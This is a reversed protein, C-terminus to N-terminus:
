ERLIFSSFSDNFKKLSLVMPGIEIVEDVEPVIKWFDALKSRTLMAIHSAPSSRKIAAVAPVTMVADGLWNSSRILIRAPLPNGPTESVGTNQQEVVSDM